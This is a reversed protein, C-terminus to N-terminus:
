SPAQRLWGWAAGAVGRWKSSNRSPAPAMEGLAVPICLIRCHEVTCHCLSGSGHAAGFPGAIHIPKTWNLIERSRLSGTAHLASPGSPKNWARLSAERRQRCPPTSRINTRKILYLRWHIRNGVVTWTEKMHSYPRMRINMREAKLYRDRACAQAHIALAHTYPVISTATCAWLM